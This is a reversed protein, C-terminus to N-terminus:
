RKSNKKILYSGIFCIGIIISLIFDIKDVQSLYFAIGIFSILGAVALYLRNKFSWSEQIDQEKKKLRILEERSIELRPKVLKKIRAEVKAKRSNIEESQAEM